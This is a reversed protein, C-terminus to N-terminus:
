LGRSLLSIEEDSLARSWFAAEELEGHFHRAVKTGQTEAGILLPEDNKTLAGRCPKSVMLHGDCFLAVDKGDYRGVLDHWATAQIKSIPFRVMHFGERTRVEFGIDPGPTEPLDVSFLNFHVRDHGGRKAFLASNWQGKPDRARLFVTARDGEVQMKSGADFYAGDLIVV